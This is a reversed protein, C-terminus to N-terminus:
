FFLAAEMGVYHNKQRLDPVNGANKIEEYAYKLTLSSHPNFRYGIESLFQNKIQTAPRMKIGSRERDFALKYLVNNISHSWEIFIDDADGGVHHGFVRGDFRMPHLHHSYWADPVSRPCIRAYEGRLVAGDLTFPKFLALGLIYARRDPPIGSDEGGWEATFKLGDV